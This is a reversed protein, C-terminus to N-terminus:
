HGTASAPTHVESHGGLDVVQKCVEVVEDLALDLGQLLFVGLVEVV